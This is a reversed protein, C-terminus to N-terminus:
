PYLIITCRSKLSNRLLLYIRASHKDLTLHIEGVPTIGPRLAGAAPLAFILLFMSLDEAVSCGASSVGM